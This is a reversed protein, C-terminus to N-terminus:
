RTNLAHPDFSRSQPAPEAAAEDRTATWLIGHKNMAPDEKANEFWVDAAEGISRHLECVVRKM